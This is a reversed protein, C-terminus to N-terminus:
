TNGPRTLSALAGHGSAQNSVAINPGRVVVTMGPVPALKVDIVTANTARPTPRRTAGRRRSRMHSLRFHRRMM